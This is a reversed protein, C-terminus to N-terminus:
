KCFRKEKSGSLLKWVVLGSGMVAASIGFGYVGEGGSQPLAPISMNLIEAPAIQAADVKGKQLVGDEKVETECTYEAKGIEEGGGTEDMRKTIVKYSKMVGSQEDLDASIEVSFIQENMVFQEPAEIEKLFYTGEDLGTFAIHGNADSTSTAFPEGSADSELYIGFVAGEVAANSKRTSTAGRKGRDPIASLYSRDKEEGNVKNIEYTEFRDNPDVAEADIVTDLGFTYQYTAAHLVGCDDMDAPNRSYELTAQNMNVAFNNDATEPLLSSQYTVEINEEGHKKIFDEEFDITFGYKNGSSDETYQVTYTPNGDSDMGEAVSKGSVSVQPGSVDAYRGQELVDTIRYIPNSYEDSYSPFTMGSLLFTLTRGAATTIGKTGSSDEDSVTKSFGTMSSKMYVRDPIDFYGQFDVTGNEPDSSTVRNVNTLNVSVVAPNYIVAGSDSVLIIYEGPDVKATYAGDGDEDKMEVAPPISGKGSRIARAIATIEDAAPKRIDKLQCGGIKTQVYGSFIKRNQNQQDIYNGQVIPYAKVSVGKEEIHLATITGQTVGNREDALVPLATGASFSVGMTM